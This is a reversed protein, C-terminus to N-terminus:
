ILSKYVNFIIINKLKRVLNKMSNYYAFSAFFSNSQNLYPVHIPLWPLKYAFYQQQETVLDHGVRKLGMSHLM